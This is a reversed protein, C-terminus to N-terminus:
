HALWEHLTADWGGSAPAPDEALLGRAEALTEARLIYAGGSRDGFGGSLEVRGEARRAELWALHVAVVAPDFDPRRQLYVLFRPM